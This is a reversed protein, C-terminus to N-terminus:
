GRRRRAILLGGLGILALSGPEPVTSIVINDVENTTGGNGDFGSFVIKVDNTGDWNFTDTAVVAGDILGTFTVTTGAAWSDFEYIFEASRPANATATGQEGSSVNNDRTVITGTGRAFVASDVDAGFVNANEAGNGVRVLVWNSGATGITYDFSISFGGAALIAASNAGTAWNYGGSNGFRLGNAGSTPLRMAWATDGANGGQSQGTSELADIGGVNIEPTTGANYANFATGEGDFNESYLVEANAPGTVFALATASALLTKTAHKM